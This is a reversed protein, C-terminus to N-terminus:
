SRARCYRGALLSFHRLRTRSGVHQSAHSHGGEVPRPSRPQSGPQAESSKATNQAILLGLTTKGTSGRDIILRIVPFRSVIPEKSPVRPRIMSRTRRAGVVTVSM